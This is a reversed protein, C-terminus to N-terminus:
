SVCFVTGNYYLYVFTYGDYGGVPIETSHVMITCLLLLFAWFGGFFLIFFFAVPILAKLGFRDDKLSRTFTDKIHNRYM